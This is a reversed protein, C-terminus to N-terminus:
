CENRCVVNVKQQIGLLYVDGLTPKNNRKPPSLGFPESELGLWASGFGLRAYCLSASGFRLGDKWRVQKRTQEEEATGAEEEAEAKAKDAERESERSQLDCWYPCWSIMGFPHIYEHVLKRTKKQHERDILQASAASAGPGQM